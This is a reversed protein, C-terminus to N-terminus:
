DGPPSASPSQPVCSTLRRHSHDIHGRSTRDSERRLSRSWGEIWRPHVDTARRRLRRLSRFAPRSGEILTTSMSRRHGEERWAPLGVGVAVREATEGEPAVSPCGLHNSPKPLDSRDLDIFARASPSPNRVSLVSSVSVHVQVPLSRRRGDITRSLNTSMTSLEFHDVEATRTAHTDTLRLRRFAPSRVEVPTISTSRGDGEEKWSPLGVGLAIREATEGEPDVSPCEHTNSSEPLDSRNLDIVARTAPSPSRVSVVSSVSVHVQVPLSRRRGDITRSLNTSM